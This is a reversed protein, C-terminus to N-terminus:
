TFHFAFSQRVTRGCLLDYHSYHREQDGFEKYTVGNPFVEVTDVLMVLDNNLSWIIRLRM